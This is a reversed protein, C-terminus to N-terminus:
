NLEYIKSLERDLVFKLKSYSSFSLISETYCLSSNALVFELKDLNLFSSSSEALDLSSNSLELSSNEKSLLNKLKVFVFMIKLKCNNTIMLVCLSSVLGMLSVKLDKM